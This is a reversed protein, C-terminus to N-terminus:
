SAKEVEVEAIQLARDQRRYGQRLVRVVAGPAAGSGQVTMIARMAAPDFPMGPEALPTVQLRRLADDLKGLTAAYDHQLTELTQAHRRLWPRRPLRLATAAEVNRALSERVDLLERLVTEEGERRAEPLAGRIKTATQEMSAAHENVGTQVFAAVQDLSRGAARATKAELRIDQRLAALEGYFAAMGPTADTEAGEEEIARIDTETLTRMWADFRALVEARWVGMTDNDHSSPRVPGHLHLRGCGTRILSGFRALLHTIM